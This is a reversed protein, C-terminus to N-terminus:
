ESLEPTAKKTFDNLPTQANNHFLESVSRSEHIRLIAESLIKAVSLVKIKGSTEKQPLSNTVIIEELESKELKERANGSFLGHTACAFVRLAGAKKLACAAAVLSGGTDIMDDFLVCNKGEVEGIISVAECTNEKPRSKNIIALEANIERSIKTCAKAAGADPAVIVIDKLGKKEIEKELFKTATLNDLPIEFFGQIQGSHLDLALVRDVGATELLRAVLKATIPERPSAKRDQRAYGYWPIVATIRQASARKLADIFILLEMISADNCTPQIVFCDEGRVNELVRVLKEGNAFSLLEREGLKMGIKEAIEEALKEHCSGSFVKLNFGNL